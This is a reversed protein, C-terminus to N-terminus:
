KLLHLNKDNTTGELHVTMSDTVMHICGRKRKRTYKCKSKKKIENEGRRQIPWFGPVFCGIYWM